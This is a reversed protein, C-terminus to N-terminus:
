FAGYSEAMPMTSDTLIVKTETSDQKYQWHKVGPIPASVADCSRMTLLTIDTYGM